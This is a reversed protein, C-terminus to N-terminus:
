DLLQKVLKGALAEYPNSKIDTPKFSRLWEAAEAMGKEMSNATELDVGNSITRLLDPWSSIHGPRNTQDFFEVNKYPPALSPLDCNNTQIHAAIKRYPDQAKKLIFVVFPGRKTYNTWNPSSRQNKDYHFAKEFETKNAVCWNDYGVKMMAAITAPVTVLVNDDDYMKEEPGTRIESTEPSRGVFRVDKAVEQRKFHYYFEDNWAELEDLTAFDTISTKLPAYKGSTATARKERAQNILSIKSQTGHKEEVNKQFAKVATYTKQYIQDRGPWNRYYGFVDGDFRMLTDQDGVMTEPEFKPKDVTEWQEKAKALSIAKHFTGNSDKWGEPQTLEEIKMDRITDLEKAAAKKAAEGGGAQFLMWDLYKKDKTTDLELFREIVAPNLLPGHGMPKATAEDKVDLLVETWSGDPQLIRYKQLIRMVTADGPAAVTAAVDAPAAARKKKKPAEHLIM